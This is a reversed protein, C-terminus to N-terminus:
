YKKIEFYSTDSFDYRLIGNTHSYYILHPITNPFNNDQKVHVSTYTIKGVNFNITNDNKYITPFYYGDISINVADVGQQIYIRKFYSTENLKQFSITINEHYYRKDSVIYEDTLKILFTDINNKSDSFYVTDNNELLPKENQPIDFYVKDDCSYCFLIILTISFIKKM